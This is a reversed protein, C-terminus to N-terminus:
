SAGRHGARFDRMCIPCLRGKVTSALQTGAPSRGCRACSVYLAGVSSMCLACMWIGAIPVFTFTVTGLHGCNPSPAEYRATM